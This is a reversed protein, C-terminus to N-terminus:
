TILCLLPFPTSWIIVILDCMIPPPPDVYILVNSIYISLCHVILYTLNLFLKDMSYGIYKKILRSSFFIVFGKTLALTQSHTGYNAHEGGLWGLLCPCLTLM